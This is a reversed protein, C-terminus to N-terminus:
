GRAGAVILEVVNGDPDAVWMQGRSEGLEVLECGAALLHERADAYSEVELALHPAIPTLKEANRGTDVGPPPVILHIQIAGAQYWAGPFGLDPREAEPLGLLGGYFAKSREIEGVVLSVHNAGGVAWGEITGENTGEATDSM